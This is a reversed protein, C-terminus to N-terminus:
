YPGRDEYILDESPRAGVPLRGLRSIEENSLPM